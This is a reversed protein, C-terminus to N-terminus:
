EEGPARVLSDVIARLTSVDIPKGHVAVAGLALLTADASDAYGTLFVWPPLADGRAKATRLATPGDMGPMRVDCLVLDFRAERLHELAEHGDGAGVADVGEHFLVRQLARVLLPEDDVVLIRPRRPTM